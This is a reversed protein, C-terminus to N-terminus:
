KIYRLGPAFDATYRERPWQTNLLDYYSAEVAVMLGHFAGGTLTMELPNGAPATLDTSLYRRYVIPVQEGAELAADVAEQAVGAVNPISFQLTQQGSTDRAPESVVIPGATFTVETDDELTVTQDEFGTCVRIPDVGSPKIELTQIIVTDTPASAYAKALLTSM